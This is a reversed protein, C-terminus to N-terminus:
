FFLTPFNICSDIARKANPCGIIDFEIPHLYSVFWVGLVINLSAAWEKKQKFSSDVLVPYRLLVPASSPIILSPKIKKSVCWAEWKKWENKRKEQYNSLKKLQNTGIAALCAPLKRYYDSPAETCLAEEKLIGDKKLLRLIKGIVPGLVARYPHKNKYYGHIFHALM